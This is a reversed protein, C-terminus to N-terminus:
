STQHNTQHNHSSKKRSVRYITWPLAALGTIALLTSGALHQLPITGAAPLNWQYDYPLPYDAQAVGDLTWHINTTIRGPNHAPATVKWKKLTSDWVPAPTAEIQDFKIGTVLLEELGVLVPENKDLTTSDGLLGSDNWGWAYTHKDSGLALNHWGGASITTFRGTAQLAGSHTLTPENRDVSTGDGIQDYMNWGWAYTKGDTGIALNHAGGAGITVFHESAPLAGHNVLIPESKNASGDNGNIGSTDNGLQGYNNVGWSYTQGDSGLALSHYGGASVTTFHESAPLAGNHVLVPESQDGNATIPIKNVESGGGQIGNGLEGHYNLGWAYTKHDSGIALNHWYGASISTFHEGAPLAGNHVLVPEIKDATTHTPTGDTEHAASSTTNDGLQGHNNLGWAYPKNDSGLAMSHYFGASITTLHQGTPLAGNHVVVPKHKDDTTGDGLQGYRNLGWAYVNGDDGLALAHYGGASIATFHVGTPAHVKVPLKRSITTTDGLQGYQNNGWAYTNGDSGIALSLYYGASIQQYVIGKPPSPPTINVTNGGSTPGVAPDITFSWEEWKATLTM